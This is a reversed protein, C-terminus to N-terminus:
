LRRRNPMPILGSFKERANASTIKILIAAVENGIWAVSVIKGCRGADSLEKISKDLKQVYNSNFLYTKGDVKGSYAETNKTKSTNLLYSLGINIHCHRVGLKKLDDIDVPCTAGKISKPWDMPPNHAPLEDMNSVFQQTALAQTGYFLAFKWFIRDTDQAIRAVEVPKKADTKGSFLEVGTEPKNSDAYVPFGILRVDVNSSIFFLLRTESAKISVIKANPPQLASTSMAATAVGAAAAVFARRTFKM